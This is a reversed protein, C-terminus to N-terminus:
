LPLFGTGDVVPETNHLPRVGQLVQEASLERCDRIAFRARALWRLRSPASDGPLERPLDLEICYSLEAGPQAMAPGCLQVTQLLKESSHEFYGDLVTRSFRTTLLCLEFRGGTVTFHEGPTLSVRICVNGGSQCGPPMKNHAEIVLKAKPRRLRRPLLRM